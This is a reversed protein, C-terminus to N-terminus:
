RSTLLECTGDRVERMLKAGFEDLLEQKERDM